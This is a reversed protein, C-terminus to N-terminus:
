FMQQFTMSYLSISKQSGKLNKLHGTGRCLHTGVCWHQCVTSADEIGLALKMPVNKPKLGNQCHHKLFVSVLLEDTNMAVVGHNQLITGLKEFVIAAHYETKDITAM